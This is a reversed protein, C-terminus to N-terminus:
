SAGGVLPVDVDVEAAFHACGDWLPVMLQQAVIRVTNTDRDVADAYTGPWVEVSDMLVTILGTAYAWVSGDVAPVGGPGSGDYGAESVVITDHVTLLLGGERRLVTNGLGAWQTVLGRSAHIMGREGCTGDALAQELFALATLPATPGSTVTDSGLDTLRRGNAMNANGTWLERGAQKSKCKDLLRRARAEYEAQQEAEAGGFTSCVDWARVYFPDALETSPRTIADWDVPAPNCSADYVDGGTCADPRFEVGLQWRGGIQEATPTNASNILSLAAPRALPAALVDAGVAM